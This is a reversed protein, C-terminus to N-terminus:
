GRAGLRGPTTAEILAWAQELPLDIVPYAKRGAATAAVVTAVGSRRQWFTQKVTWGVIGRAELCDRTRDLSGSRTILWSQGDAGPLVRHGLGRYRDQALAAMIVTFVAPVSWIWPPLDAGLWLAVAVAVYAAGAPWAAKTYRRKRAVPGHPVLDVTALTTGSFRARGPAGPGRRTDLLEDLTREVAARPAQPLLKQRPNEGTMIMELQGAGALRLLLPEDITAGRFRAMDLTIQRTTFLGHTLHLTTGNDVVRLGFWTTVYQACAAVSVLAVATAVVGAVVLLALSVSDDGLHRVPASDSIVDIIGYQAGLGAIPAVVALGTLSLPAYRVWAARWHAIEPVASTTPSPTDAGAVPTTAASAHALLEARLPPVLRADLADLRFGENKEAQRGTGIVLVALGLARHLLDAEVDVSRIRTRPVSLTRRQLVGSRLEVHSEGVRYTTTFWRLIGYGVIVAAPILGWLHNGSTSGVVVAGFLVPIYKVIETVPTVVLMRPDLRQWETVTAPATM